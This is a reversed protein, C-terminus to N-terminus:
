NIIIHLKIILHLNIIVHLYVFMSVLSRSLQLWHICQSQRPTRHSNLALAARALDLSLSLSLSVASQEDFPWHFFSHSPPFSTVSILRLLIASQCTKFCSLYVLYHLKSMILLFKIHLKFTIMVMIM